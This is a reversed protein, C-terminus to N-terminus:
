SLHSVITRRSKSVPVKEKNSLILYSGDGRHFESIYKQNILHSQHVRIFGDDKLTQDYFKLTKSVMTSKGNNTHITTYNSSSQLRIIQDLDIYKLGRSTPVALKDFKGKRHSEILHELNPLNNKSVQEKAKALANMLDDPDVPKTIYDLANMRLAKIAYQGYATVFIVQYDKFKSKEIVEFGKGDPMEIDLFLLDPKLHNIKEVGEEVSSATDIINIEPDFLKLISTLNKIAFVEDDIILANM